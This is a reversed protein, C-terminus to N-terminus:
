SRAFSLKVNLTFEDYITKDGLNDFFSGSGYRVNFDTRDLVIEAKATGSAQDVNANFRIEKTVGKVTANATIRYEGDKGMNAVKTIRLMATPYQDIGFFDDSNLHGELKGKSDGSLDTVTITNMDIEFYGGSLMDNNFELSGTKINVTGEHSGTVKRANWTLESSYTNVKLSEAAASGPQTFSMAMVTFAFLSAILMFKKM